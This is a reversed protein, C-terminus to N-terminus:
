TYATVHRKKLALSLRNQTDGFKIKNIRETDCVYFNFIFDILGDVFPSSPNYSVAILLTLNEFTGKQGHQNALGTLERSPPYRRYFDSDSGQSAMLGHEKHRTSFLHGVVKGSHIWCGDNDEWYLYAGELNDAAESNELMFNGACALMTKEAGLCSLNNKTHGQLCMLGAARVMNQVTFQFPTLNVANKKPVRRRIRGAVPLDSFSFENSCMQM